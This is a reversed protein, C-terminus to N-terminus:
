RRQAEDAALEEFVLEVIRPLKAAVTPSLEMSMALSEPECGIITTRPTRGSILESMHIVELIGIQHVSTKVGAFSTPADDIDFRYLSGPEAGGKVCDVVIIRGAEVIVNMLKFGDTGGEVLTVDPPLGREHIAGAVHVGVGEDSLLINGICLVVTGGTPPATVAGGVGLAVNPRTM